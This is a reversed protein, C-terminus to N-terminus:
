EEITAIANQSLTVTDGNSQPHAVIATLNRRWLRRRVDMGRQHSDVWTKTSFTRGYHWGFRDTIDTSDIDGGQENSRRNRRKKVVIAWSQDIRLGEPVVPMVSQFSDGYKSRDFNAYRGPDNAEFNQGAGWGTNKQYRQFEWVYQETVTSCDSQMGGQLVCLDSTSDDAEVCAFADWTNGM